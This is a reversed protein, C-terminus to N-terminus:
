KVTGSINGILNVDSFLKLIVSNEIIDGGFTGPAASALSGALSSIIICLLIAFFLGEAIGFVLGMTKDLTKLVPLKFVIGVVVTAVKLVVLAVAFIVIFAIVNALMTSIPDAVSYAIDRIIESGSDVKGSLKELLEGDPSFQECLKVFQPDSALRSLDYVSDGANQQAISAFTKELSKAISEILFNTKIFLSLAPTAAYAVISAAIGSVLSMLTKFFGNKTGSVICLVVIAVIILDLIYGM